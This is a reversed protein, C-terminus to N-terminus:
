RTDLFYYETVSLLTAVTGQSSLLPLSAYSFSHATKRHRLLVKKKPKRNKQNSEKSIKSNNNNNNNNNSNDYIPPVCPSKLSNRKKTKRTALLFKKKLRTESSNESKNKAERSKTLQLGCLSASHQSIIDACPM